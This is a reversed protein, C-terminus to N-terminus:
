DMWSWECWPGHQTEPIETIVIELNTNQKLPSTDTV